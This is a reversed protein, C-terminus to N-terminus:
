HPSIVLLHAHMAEPMVIPSDGNTPDGDADILEHTTPDVAWADNYNIVWYRDGSPEFLVGSAGQEADGRELNTFLLPTTQTGAAFSILTLPGVNENRRSTYYLAGDRVAPVSAVSGGIATVVHTVEFTAGDILDVGVRNESASHNHDNYGVSLVDSTDSWTLNEGQGISSAPLTLPQVGEADGDTDVVNFSGVDLFWVERRDGDRDSVLVALRQGDSRLVVSRGTRSAADETFLTTRRVETLAETEFEIVHVATPVSTGEDLRGHWHSGDNFVGYLSAGDSSLALGGINGEGNKTGALDTGGTVELTSTDIVNIFPTGKEGAFVLRGDPSIVGQRLQRGLGVGGRETSPLEIGHAIGSMSTDLMVWRGGNSTGYIMPADIFHLQVTVAGTFTSEHLFELARQVTGGPLISEPGFYTFVKDGDFWLTGHVPRSGDEDPHGEVDPVLQAGDTMSDNVAKLNFLLRCTDNRVTLDIGHVVADLGREEAAERWTATLTLDAPQSVVTATENAIDYELTAIQPGLVVRTTSTQAARGSFRGAEDRAWAAFHMVCGPPTTVAVSGAVEVSLVVQGDGLDEELQYPTGAEPSFSVAEGARMVVLISALDVDGPSTWTLSIEDTAVGVLDVVDGPIPDIDTLAAPASYRGAEDVAWGAFHFPAGRAPVPVTANGGADVYVVRTADGVDEGVTHATGSSPAFTVAEAPRMVLLAGALDEDAPNTWTIEFDTGAVSVRLNTLPGPAPDVADDGEVTPCALGLACIFSM